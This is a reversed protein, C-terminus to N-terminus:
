KPSFSHTSPIGNRHASEKLEATLMVVYKQGVPRNSVNYTKASLQAMHLWYQQWQQWIKDELLGRNLHHGASNQIYNCYVEQPLLNAPTPVYGELNTGVEQAPMPPPTSTPPSPEMHNNNNNNNSCPFSSSPSSATSSCIKM